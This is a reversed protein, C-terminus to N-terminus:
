LDFLEFDDEEDSDMELDAARKSELTKEVEEFGAAVEAKAQLIDADTEEPNDYETYEDEEGMMYREERSLRKGVKKTTPIYTKLEEEPEEAHSPMQGSGSRKGTVLSVILLILLLVALASIGALVYGRVKFDQILSNYNLGLEGYKMEAQELPEGYYRQITREQTDFSYLGKEGDSNVGYLICYRDSEDAKWVWGRVEVTGISINRNGYGTSLQIGEEPQIIQIIVNENGLEALVVYDPEAEQPEQQQEEEEILTKLVTITYDKTTIGDQATVRCIVTNEGEQLDDGGQIMKQAGSNNTEASIIFKETDLDVTVKYHEEQPTFSPNLTGPSITLSKLMADSSSTALPSVTITSTGEKEMTLMKGDNDYASWDLVKIQTTGAQLAKFRLVIVAETKQAPLSRVIITGADGDALPTENIYELAAADYSLTTRMDGLVSDTVSFRMTVSVEEGVTTTPDSFSIRASGDAFSTLPIGVLVLCMVCFTFASRLIYNRKKIM